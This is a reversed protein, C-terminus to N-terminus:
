VRRFIRIRARRGFMSLALYVLLDERRRKSALEFEATDFHQKLSEFARRHSDALARIQDSFEFEDNAPIRGLDLATHWFDEFLPRDQEIKEKAIIYDRRIEQRATLHRWERHVQQRALLYEQEAVKDRFVIFIGPQAAVPVEKLVQEIYSKLEAQSYYKQFTNRSTIVGDSFRRFQQVIADGGLMVSIVLFKGAFDYAKRLAESRQKPDEIVNLVFGLNVIDAKRPAVRNAHVPDWGTVNLGHAELERVDDGKGCGYDLVSYRGDLYGHRALVQMPTSLKSRDIATLHREINVTEDVPIVEAIAQQSLPTFVGDELVLGQKRILTNWQTRFGIRKPDSYLGAQEASHTLRQYEQYRKHSPEILLEKRHLIPPNIAKEM